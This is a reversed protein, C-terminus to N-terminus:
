YDYARVTFGTTHLNKLKNVLVKQSKYNDHALSFAVRNGKLTYLDKLVDWMVLSALDEDISDSLSLTSPKGTYEVELQSSTPVTIQGGSENDTFNIFNGFASREVWYVTAM